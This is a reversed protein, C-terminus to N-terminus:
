ISRNARGGAVPFKNEVDVILDKVIYDEYRDQPPQDANVFYSSNGEPMILILDREAYRSVDSYNTWDRFGGGGGHLLYVVPLKTGAVISAPMVMRYRMDRRLAMSRFTVDIMTVKVTLRPSDHQAVEANKNCSALFFFFPCLLVSAFRPWRVTKVRASLM